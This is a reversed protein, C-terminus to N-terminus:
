QQKLTDELSIVERYAQKNQYHQLRRQFEDHSASEAQQKLADIAKEQTQVALSFDGVEAYAAALNDLHAPDDQNDQLLQLSLQVARSGDRYQAEPCTALIWAVNGLAVADGVASFQTVAKGCDRNVGNGGSSYIFGLRFHAWTDGAQSLALYWREALALDRPFLKGEFSLDALTQQAKLHGQLAAQEVWHLGAKVDKEMHRGSLNMLGLLFQAEPDGQQSKLQIQMLKTAAQSAPTSPLSFAQATQWGSALYLSLALVAFKPSYTV